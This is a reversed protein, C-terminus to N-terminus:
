EGSHKIESRLDLEVKEEDGASDMDAESGLDQSHNINHIGNIVAGNNTDSILQEDDLDM